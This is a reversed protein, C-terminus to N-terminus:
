SFVNTINAETDSSVQTVIEERSFGPGTPVGKMAEAIAKRILPGLSELTLVPAPTTGSERERKEELAAKVVETFVMHPYNEAWHCLDMEHDDFRFSKTKAM